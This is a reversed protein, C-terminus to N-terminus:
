SRGMEAAIERKRKEARLADIIVQADDETLESRTKIERGLLRSMRARQDDDILGFMRKRTDTTLPRTDTM